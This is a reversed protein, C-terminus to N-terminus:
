KAAERRLTDRQTVTEAVKCDAGLQRDEWDGAVAGGTKREMEQLQDRADDIDDELQENRKELHRATDTMSQKAKEVQRESNEM